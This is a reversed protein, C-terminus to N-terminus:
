QDILYSRYSISKRSAQDYIGPYMMKLSESNYDDIKKM